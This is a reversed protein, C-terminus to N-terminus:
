GTELLFQRTMYLCIRSGVSPESSEFAAIFCPTASAFVMPALTVANTTDVGSCDSTTSGLATEFASSCYLASTAECVWFYRSFTRLSASLAPTSHEAKHM